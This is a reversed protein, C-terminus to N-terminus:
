LDLDIRAVTQVKEPLDAWGIAYERHIIRFERMDGVLIENPAGPGYIRDFPDETCRRIGFFMDQWTRGRLPHRYILVYRGTTQGGTTHTLKGAIDYIALIGTPCEPDGVVKAHRRATYRRSV